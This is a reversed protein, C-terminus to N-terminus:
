LGLGIAIGFGLGCGLWAILMFFLMKNTIKNEKEWNINFIKM